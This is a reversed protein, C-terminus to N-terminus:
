FSEDFEYEFEPYIISKWAESSSYAKISHVKQDQFNYITVYMEKPDIVWFEEVGSLKYLKLKKTKDKEQTSPSLVEVVLKPIGRYRDNEDADQRWNCLVLIDPQVVNWNNEAKLTVDFPSVFADCPKGRLFKDLAVHLKSVVWQHRISPSTMLYVEGDIYEYRKDATKNMKEFAEFSMKLRDANYAAEAECVRDYNNELSVLKAVTLGNKTIEVDESACLRLYKGFSNKIETSTVKM